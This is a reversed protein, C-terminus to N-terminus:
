VSKSAGRPRQGGASKSSGLLSHIDANFMSAYIDKRAKTFSFYFDVRKERDRIETSFYALTRNEISISITM